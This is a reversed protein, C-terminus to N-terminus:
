QSHKFACFDVFQVSLHISNKMFNRGDMKNLLIAGKDGVFNNVTLNRERFQKWVWEDVHPRLPEIIDSALSERGYSPEHYIGLMPDLGSCHCAIVAEQHLLTYGLSLCANVADRPPRRNRKTFNASPPFLSCFATFYANAAAGEIGLFQPLSTQESDDVRKLYNQLLKVGRFLIRRKDQRQGLAKSLLRHQAQIKSIVLNRSWDIRADADRYFDFQGLRRIVDKHPRGVFTALHRNQRGSLVLVGVGSDALAGLVSTSLQIKGRLVLREIQALPVSGRRGTSQYFELISNTVRLELNNRDIYVTTTM